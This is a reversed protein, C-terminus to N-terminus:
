FFVFGSAPTEGQVSEDEQMQSKFIFNAGIGWSLEVNVEPLRM